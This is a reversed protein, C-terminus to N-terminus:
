ATFYLIDGMWLLLHAHMFGFLVLWGMRSFFLGKYSIGANKKREIFLLIGAGFIMSFLARMKGEFLVGVFFDTWYNPSQLDSHFAKYFNEPLAFYPINMLLIGLVAVGRLTDVAVIRDAQSVPKSFTPTM